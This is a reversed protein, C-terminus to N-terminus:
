MAVPTKANFRVEGLIAPAVTKAGQIQINAWERQDDEISVKEAALGLM